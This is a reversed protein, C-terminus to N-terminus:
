AEAMAKKAATALFGSRTFGHREAYADIENLTDEPLTINVRVARTPGDQLPVLLSPFPWGM